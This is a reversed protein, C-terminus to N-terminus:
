IFNLGSKVLILKWAVQFVRLLLFTANRLNVLIEGGINEGM